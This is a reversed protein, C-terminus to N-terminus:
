NVGLMFAPIKRQKLLRYISAPQGALIRRGGGIDYRYEM